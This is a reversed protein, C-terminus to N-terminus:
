RLMDSNFVVAALSGLVAAISPLFFATGHNSAHRRLLTGLTLGVGLGIIAGGLGWVIGGLCGLESCGKGPGADFVANGMAGGLIVSGVVL